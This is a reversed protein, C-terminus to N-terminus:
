IVTLVVRRIRRMLHIGFVWVGLQLTHIEFDAQYRYILIVFRLESQRPIHLIGPLFQLLSESLLVPLCSLKPSEFEIDPIFTRRAWATSSAIFATQLFSHYDLTLM